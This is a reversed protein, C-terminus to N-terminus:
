EFVFASYEPFNFAPHPIFKIDRNSFATILIKPLSGSEADTLDAGILGINIAGELRDYPENILQIDGLNSLLLDLKQV